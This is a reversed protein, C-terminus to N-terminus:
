KAEYQQLITNYPTNLLQELSVENKDMYNKVIQYGLFQGMRDPSEEPLGISFPGENLLNVRTEEDTKFLYEKDILFKWMSKESNIAWDWDKQSYRLCNAESQHPLLAKTIFLIKGWRMMESAYNEDTEELYNTMLWAALVDREIFKPSMGEKIWQHFQQPPLEKIVKENPGVYREVGIAIEKETCFVSASFLSNIFLVTSPIRKKPFHYKMRKFDAVLDRRLTAYPIKKEITKELRQIYKDKKFDSIKRIFSTDPYFSIGLCYGFSYDMLEAHKRKLDSRLCLLEKESSHYVISDLNIFEELLQISSIDVDYPNDNCATSFILLLTLSFFPIFRM